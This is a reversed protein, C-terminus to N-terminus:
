YTENLSKFYKMQLKFKEFFFFFFVKLGEIMVFAGLTFTM